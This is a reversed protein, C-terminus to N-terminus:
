HRAGTRSQTTSSARAALPPHTPPPPPRHPEPVPDEEDAEGNEGADDDEVDDDGEEEVLKHHTVPQPKLSSSSAPAVTYRGRIVHDWCQCTRTGRSWLGGWFSWTRASFTSLSIRTRCTRDSKGSSGTAEAPSRRGAQM